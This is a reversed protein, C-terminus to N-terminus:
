NSVDVDPSSMGSIVDTCKASPRCMLFDTYSIATTRRVKMSSIYPALASDHHDLECPSDAAPHISVGVACFLGENIM